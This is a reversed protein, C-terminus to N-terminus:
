IYSRVRLVVLSYVNTSDVKISPVIEGWRHRNKGNWHEMVKRRAGSECSSHWDSPLHFKSEEKWDSCDVSAEDVHVYSKKRKKKRRRREGGASSSSNNHIYVFETDANMARKKRRPPVIQIDIRLDFQSNWYKDENDRSTVTTGSKPKAAQWM